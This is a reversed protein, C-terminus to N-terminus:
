VKDWTKKEPNYRKIPKAPNGAVVTYAPVNKTVVSSGAVIAHRGITVGAAIFCNAGIWVDEEIIIPSAYAGQIRSPLNINEYYHNLGSLIVHPGLGSSDKITIPGILVNSVGIRVNNGILVDGMGNDILSYEEITSNAGLRFRNIPSVNLITQFRIVAGKGHRFVLPNLIHKVWWRPRANCFMFRHIRNKLAPSHKVREKLTYISIM